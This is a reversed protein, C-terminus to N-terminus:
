SIEFSFSDNGFDGLTGIPEDSWDCDLGELESILINEDILEIVPDIGLEACARLRHCGEIAIIENGIEYGRITPAGLIEMEAIVSNLHDQDFHTHLLFVRTSM